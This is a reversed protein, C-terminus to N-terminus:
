RIRFKEFEKNFYIGAEIEDLSMIKKIVRDKIKFFGSTELIKLIEFVYGQDLPEKEALVCLENYKLLVNYFTISKKSKNDRALKVVSLLVLKQNYNLCENISESLSM